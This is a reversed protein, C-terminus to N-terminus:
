HALPGFPEAHTARVDRLGIAETLISQVRSLSFPKELFTVQYASLQEELNHQGWGSILLIPITRDLERIAKAVQMGSLDPMALDTFIVDYAGPTFLSLAEHGTVASTVDCGLSSLLEVLSALVSENDDVVLARPRVPKPSAEVTAPVIPLTVIFTTGRGPHSECEISGGHRRIVGYSVSLGLGTGHGEKTTFFPDFARLRVEEPMGMGTDSVSVQVVPSLDPIPSRLLSQDSRTEFEPGLLATQISLRGGTPMADLANLVLNLLVEKLELANGHVLPLDGLSLALTVPPQRDKLSVLDLVDSVLQNLDVPGWRTRSRDQKSFERLRRILEAADLAAQQLVDLERMAGEDSLCERLSEAQGLIAELFNSFNHAIGSVMTSLARAKQVQVLSTRTRLQHTVDLVHEVVAEVHGAENLLPYFYAHQVRDGLVHELELFAPEKTEMLRPLPCGPCPDPLRRFIEHCHQGVFERPSRGVVAAAGSNARKVILGPTVLMLPQGLADFTREWELKARIVQHLLRLYILVSRAYDALPEFADLAQANPDTPMPAEVVLVGALEQEITLPIAHTWKQPDSSITTIATNTELASNVLSSYPPFDGGATLLSLQGDSVQWIAVRAGPVLRPAIRHVVDISLRAADRPFERLAM